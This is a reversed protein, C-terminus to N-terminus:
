ALSAQCAVRFADRHSLLQLGLAMAAAVLAFLCATELQNSAYIIAYGPGGEGRRTSGAFSAGAIGGLLGIGASIPIGPLLNPLTNPM